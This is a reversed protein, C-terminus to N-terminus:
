ADTKVTEETSAKRLTESIRAWMAQTGGLMFDLRKLSFRKYGGTAHLMMCHTEEAKIADMVATENIQEVKNKRAITKKKGM